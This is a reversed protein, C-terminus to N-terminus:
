LMSAFPQIFNHFLSSFWKSFTTSRDVSFILHEFRCRSHVTQSKNDKKPYVRRWYHTFLFFLWDFSPLQCPRRVVFQGQHNTMPWGGVVVIKQRYRLRLISSLSIELPRFEECGCGELKYRANLTIRSTKLLLTGWCGIYIFVCRNCFYITM